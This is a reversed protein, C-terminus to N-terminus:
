KVLLHDLLESIPEDIDFSYPSLIIHKRKAIEMQIWYQRTHESIQFLRPILSLVELYRKAGAEEGMQNQLYKLLMKAYSERQETLLIRGDDSLDPIASYCYIISKLLVYEPM